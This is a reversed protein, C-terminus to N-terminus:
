QVSVVRQPLCLHGMPPQPSASQILPLNSLIDASQDSVQAFFTIIKLM